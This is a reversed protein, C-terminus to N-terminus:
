TLLKRYIIEVAARMRSRDFRNVAFDVAKNRMGDNVRDFAIKMAKYLNEATNGDYLFATKGNDVAASVGGTNHAVPICGCAQAEAIVLGFSEMVSPLCLIEHSSYAVALTDKDVAGHFVVGYEKAIGDQEAATIGGGSLVSDGYFDLTVEKGATRVRRLADLLIFIGKDRTLSGAFMASGKKRYSKRDYFVDLNITNPVCYLKDAPLGCWKMYNVHMDSVGIIFDYKDTYENQPFHWCHQYRVWKQFRRKVCRRQGISFIVLDFSASLDNVGDDVPILDIGDMKEFRVLKESAIAVSCGLDIFVRAAAFLMENTGAFPIDSNVFGPYYFLVNM